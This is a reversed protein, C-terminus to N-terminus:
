LVDNLVCFTINRQNFHWIKQKQDLNTKNVWNDLCWIFNEM